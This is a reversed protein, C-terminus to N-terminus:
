DTRLSKLAAFPNANEPEALRARAEAADANPGRPYPDLAVALSQAVAEGLNIKTGTYYETDFDSEGLEIELDTSVTDPLEAEPEFRLDIEEELRVPFDEATIVCTQLLSAHLTGRAFVIPGDQTLIVEAILDSLRAIDFRRALAKCEAASAELRFPADGIDRLDILRSFESDKFPM